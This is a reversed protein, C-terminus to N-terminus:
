EGPRAGCGPCVEPTAFPLRGKLLRHRCSPCRVTNVMYIPTVGLIVPLFGFFYDSLTIGAFAAVLLLATCTGLVRFAQGRVDEYRLRM